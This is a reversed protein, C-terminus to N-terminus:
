TKSTSKRPKTSKKPNKVASKKLATKKPVSKKVKATGVSKTKAVKTKKAPSAKVGSSAKRGRKGCGYLEAGAKEPFKSERILKNAYFRIHSEDAKSDPCQKAVKGLIVKISQKALIGEEIISKASAM